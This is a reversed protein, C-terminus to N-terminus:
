RRRSDYSKLLFMFFPFGFQLSFRQMPNMVYRFRPAKLVMFSSYLRARIDNRDEVSDFPFSNWLRAMGMFTHFFEASAKKWVASSRVLNSLRLIEHAAEIRDFQKMHAKKTVSEGHHRYRYEAATVAVTAAQAFLMDTLVEDACMGGGPMGFREMAEFYLKKRFAGMGSINYGDLSAAFAEEGTIVSPIDDGKNIIPTGDSYNVIRGLAVDAKYKKVASDLIALYDSAIADDADVEVVFEGQAQQLAILRPRFAGGSNEATSLLTIKPRSMETSTDDSGIYSRSIEATRDTSCDDVVILEWDKFTQGLISNLAEEIYQEANYAAMIISFRVKGEERASIDM